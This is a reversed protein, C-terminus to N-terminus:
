VNAFEPLPLEYTLIPDLSSPLGETWTRSMSPIFKSPSILYDISGAGAKRVYVLLAALDRDQRWFKSSEVAFEDEPVIDATPITLPQIM